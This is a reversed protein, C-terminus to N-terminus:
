KLLLATSLLLWKKSSDNQWNESIELDKSKLIKLENELSHNKMWIKTPMSFGKKPMYLVDKPLIEAISHRLFPKNNKLSLESVNNNQNFYKQVFQHDLYPFRMEINQKMSPADSRLSHHSSIYYHIDLYSIKKLIPYKDFHPQDTKVQNILIELPHIWNDSQHKKFIQKIEEWSAVSRTIFPLSEIGFQTLEDYKLRKKKPLFHKFSPILFPQIYQLKKAKSYYSYGYFLEDLGLANHLVVYDQKKAAKALFYAPEPTYNPEEEALIFEIIEADNCENPITIEKLHLNSNKANSRAFEIENQEEIDSNYISIADVDVNNQNLQYALLGSDLGGSLMVAQKVDSISAMKVINKVDTLFENKSIKEVSPQYNLTWYKVKKFSFDHTNIILQTAPELANINKYITFPAFSTNLYFNYALHKYDIEKEILNTAFIGKIESSFLFKSDDLFYYFPKIGLRDRWIKIQHNEHDIVVIAFMGHLLHIFEDGFKLYLNFVVETDSNSKFVINQLHKEKLEKFNYVEGNLLFAIKKETHYFPQMGNNSLDLISLRNFGFWNKAHFSSSNPFKQQTETDSLNSSFLSFDPNFSAHLTNDPGRHKIAKLSAKIATDDIFNTSFIGSFGCM